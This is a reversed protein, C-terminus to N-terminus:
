LLDLQPRPDNKSQLFLLLDIRIQSLRNEIVSFGQQARLLFNAWSRKAERPFQLIEVEPRRVFSTRFPNEPYLSWSLYQM